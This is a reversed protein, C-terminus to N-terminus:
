HIMALWERVFRVPHKRNYYFGRLLSEWLAKHSEPSAEFVQDKGDHLHCLYSYIWHLPVYGYHRRLLGMSEEFMLRRQRLSINQRHMRSTALCQATAVLPFRKSLRIWLDYDFASRLASDLMGVAEVAERRMFCAPQCIGCDHMFMEPTYPRKTPYCGLCQGDVDTWYADGYVAAADPASVLHEVATQVAGQLYTDDASLWALISGRARRFGGNIADATGKDPKSDFQLRGQYRQLLAITGDTSGGDMVLYEIFPYDQSLVSQITEELFRGSNLSPTVISVFPRQEM